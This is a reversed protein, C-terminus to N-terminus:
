SLAARPHVHFRYAQPLRDFVAHHHDKLYTLLPSLSCTRRACGLRSVLADMRGHRADARIATILSPRVFRASAWTRYGVFNVGRKIPQLSYHSIELGLLALHQTIRELWLLGTQRDPAIMVSDDMYRAYDRVQLERKCFHDLSNLYVNAFTQSLLNGIPVGRPEPRHAFQALLDLTQECKIVRRLLRDLVDRDISYFFKRVDVHLTWSTRPARRMAAQMWDAAKHTGKAVRCAFSTDIYRRELLPSIVAYIAHQVVLDRFAPAEILRAKKRENVIFRNCPHPRYSGSQLEDLLQHIQGGLNRAFRFTARHSRKNRSAQEYAALLSEVSAIRDFLHGARKM